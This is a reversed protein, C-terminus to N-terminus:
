VLSHLSPGSSSKCELREIFLIRGIHLIAAWAIFNFGIDKIEWHAVFGAAEAAHYAYLMLFGLIVLALAWKQLRDPAACFVNAAGFAVTAYCAAFAIDWNM